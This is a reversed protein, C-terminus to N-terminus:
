ISRSCINRCSINAGATVPHRVAQAPEADAKEHQCYGTKSPLATVCPAPRPGAGARLSLNARVSAASTIRESAPSNQVADSSVVLDFKDPIGVPSPVDLAAGTASLNRVTCDIASGGFEITGAKLVRHRFLGRKETESLM